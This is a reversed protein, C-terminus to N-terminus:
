SQQEKFERRDDLVILSELMERHPTKISGEGESGGGRGRGEM